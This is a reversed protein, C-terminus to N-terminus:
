IRKYNEQLSQYRYRITAFYSGDADQFIRGNDWVWVRFSARHINDILPEVAKVLLSLTAQDPLQVQRGMVTAEISPAYCNISGLAIQDQTNSIGTTNVVIGRVYRDTSKINPEVFGGELLSIVGQVNLLSRVDSVVDFGNKAM